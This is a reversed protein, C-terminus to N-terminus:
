SERLLVSPNSRAAREAPVWAAVAAAALLVGAAVSFVSGDRPPIGYLLAGVFRALWYSLLCGVAVGAASITVM